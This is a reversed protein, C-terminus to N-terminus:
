QSAGLTFNVGAGILWTPKELTESVSVMTGSGAFDHSFARESKRYMVYQGGVNVQINPMFDWGIGLSFANSPLTYNMDTQYEDTPSVGTTIWGGSLFFHGTLAYEAALGLEWSNADLYDQRGAWDAQKDFFYHFGTSLLLPEVPRLTAGISLMAPLDLRAKAGDPFMTVPEGTGPNMGVIVDKATKNTLELKTNHEYKVAINLMDIPQINVSIIPTFGSGTKEADVEQDGLLQGKAATEASQQTFSASAGQFAAQAQANTMGDQYLGLPTLIGILVPDSLTADGFGGDIAPQLADALATMSAAYGSLQESLTSFFSTAPIWNGDVQLQIDKMYGSYTEKATVYRGGIAVSIMDNIAYSVNAQYGFFVSRGEFFANMRYATVNQGQNQLAVPIDAIPMEFSPLGRNYSAGGGGGIPNFGASFAWNGTKYVAYIGPFLPASVDGTYQKENLYVYNSTVTRTQAIFQNNVSFHFGDALRTLGAPNYYVADIGLTADRAPMRTYMASQNTNHLIGGAFMTGSVLLAAMTASLPRIM